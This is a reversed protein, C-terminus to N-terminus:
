DFGIEPALSGHKAAGGVISKGSVMTSLSRQCWQSLLAAYVSRDWM